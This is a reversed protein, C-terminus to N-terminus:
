VARLRSANGPIEPPRGIESRPEECDLGMERLAKIFLVKSSRECEVAPHVRPQGYRDQITIGDREVEARAASARDWMEGATLLLRLHHSQLHYDRCIEDFWKRTPPRLHTTSLKTQKPM